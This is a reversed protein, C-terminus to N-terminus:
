DRGVEKSVKFVKEKEREKEKRPSSVGNRLNSLDRTGGKAADESATTKLLASFGLPNGGRRICIGFPRLGNSGHVDNTLAVYINTFKEIQRALSWPTQYDFRPCLVEPRLAVKSREICVRGDKMERLRSRLPPRTIM